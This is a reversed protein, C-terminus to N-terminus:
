SPQFFRATGEVVGARAHFATDRMSDLQKSMKVLLGMECTFETGVITYDAKLKAILVANNAARHHSEIRLCHLTRAEAEMAAILRTYLGQRRHAHEVGSDSVYLIGVPALFAHSWGVLIEGISAGIRVQLAQSAAPAVRQSGFLRQGVERRDPDHLLRSVLETFAPEAFRDVTRIMIADPARIKQLWWLPCSVVRTRM